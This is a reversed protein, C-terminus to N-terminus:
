KRFNMMNVLGSGLHVMPMIGPVPNFNHQKQYDTQDQWTSANIMKVGKYDMFGYGHVHGSVFIDPVIEMAMYDKKEPALATKQGYIPALHRADTMEKMVRLPDNYTLQQVGAVWDDISRGHYTLVTRGEINLYM